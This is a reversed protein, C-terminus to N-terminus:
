EGGKAPVACNACAPADPGLEIWAAYACQVVGRVLVVVVVVLRPKLAGATTVALYEVAVAVLCKM